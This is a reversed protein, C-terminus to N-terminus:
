EIMRSILNGLMGRNNGTNGGKLINLKKKGSFGGLPCNLKFPSLFRLIKTQDEADSFIGFCLEEICRYKGNFAQEIEENTLKIKIKTGCAKRKIGCGRKYILKRMLEYNITGYAIYSAATKLLNRNCLNNKIIVCENIHKLRLLELCKKPKPPVGNTSRILVAVLYNPEAELVITSPDNHVEVKMMSKVKEIIQPVVTKEYQLNNAIRQNLNDEQEKKITKMKQEYEQRIQSSVPEMM